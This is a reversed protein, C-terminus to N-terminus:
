NFIALLENVPKRNTANCSILRAAKFSVIKADHYIKRATPTDHNSIVVPIGKNASARALDALEEQHEHTFRQQSYATFQATKSLPLYPPDCYIVDGLKAKKMVTDFTLHTFRVQRAKQAFLELEQAPFRPKLYRGFPVNFIGSQNYRCLGNYGHRNLYIFLAAKEYDDATSNFRQRLQYYRKETNNKPTFWDASYSIFATPDKILSQYLYILDHNLDNLWYNKYETNLFIAGSGAFPEILRTHAPLHPIIKNLLRFKGGAWKLFPKNYKYPSTEQM